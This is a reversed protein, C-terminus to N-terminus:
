TRVEHPVYPRRDQRKFTALDRTAASYYNKRESNNTNHDKVDRAKKEANREEGKIYCEVRAIMEDM